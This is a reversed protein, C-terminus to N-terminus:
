LTDVDFLNLLLLDAGEQSAALEANTITQLLSQVVGIIESM